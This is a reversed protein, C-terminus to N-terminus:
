PANLRQLEDIWRRTLDRLWADGVDEGYGAYATAILQKGRLLLLSTTTLLYHPRGDRAELRTGALLSVMLPTRRLEAVLRPRGVPQAELFARLEAPAEPNGMGRASEAALARFQRLGISDREQARPTAVLLYRRLEPTDGAMFRRRDADTLAFLLIRNSASTLGQALEQLRPSGLDLTDAFGAPADLVLRAEGVRVAFPEAAAGLSLAALLSCVLARVAAMTDVM